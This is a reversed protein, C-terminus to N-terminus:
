WGSACASGNLNKRKERKTATPVAAANALDPLFPRHTGQMIIVLAPSSLARYKLASVARGSTGLEIGLLWVTSMVM